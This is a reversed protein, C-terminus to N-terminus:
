RGERRMSDVISDFTGRMRENEEAEDNRADELMKTAQRAKMVENRYRHSARQLSLQLAKLRRWTGLLGMM